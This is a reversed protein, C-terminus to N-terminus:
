ARSVSVGVLAELRETLGKTIGVMPRAPHKVTLEQNTFKKNLLWGMRKAMEAMGRAKGIRAAEGGTMSVSTGSRERSVLNKREALTATLRQRREREHKPISRGAFAQKSLRLANEISKVQADARVAANQEQKERRDPADEAKRVDGAMERMWGYLRKQVDKTVKKTKSPLGEHLAGAYDLRSGVEVADTGVVWFNLSRRLHGRDTLTNRSDFRHAPPRRSGYYFDSIVGPWNPVMRTDRRSKWRVDGLRNNRFAAQSESLMLAGVQTLVWRPNEVVQTRLFALRSGEQLVDMSYPTGPM